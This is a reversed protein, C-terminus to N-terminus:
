AFGASTNPAFLLCSNCSSSNIKLFILASFNNSCPTVSISLVRTSTRPLTTAPFSQEISTLTIKSPSTVKPLLTMILDFTTKCSTKMPSLEIMSDNLWREDAETPEFQLM